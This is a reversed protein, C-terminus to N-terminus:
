VVSKRDPIFPQMFNVMGLFSQLQKRDKPATIELIGQIKAPDPKIGDQSFVQGYFSISPKKIECKSSNFVLGNDDAVKLLNLLNADHEQDTSGYVCIDNHIGIVGECREIIQDMRMQFVDQSM